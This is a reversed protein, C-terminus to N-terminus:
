YQFDAKLVFGRNKKIKIVYFYIPFEMKLVISQSIVQKECLNAM